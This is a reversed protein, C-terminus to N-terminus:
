PRLPCRPPPQSASSPRLQAAAANAPLSRPPTAPVQGLHPLTAHAADGLLVLGGRSWPAVPPRYFLGFHALGAPRAGAGDVATADVLARLPRNGQWQGEAVVAELAARTAAGAWSEPAAQDSRYALAWVVRAPAGFVDDSFTPRPAPPRGSDTAPLIPGLGYYIFSQGRGYHQVLSHDQYQLADRDVTKMDAVGYFLNLGSYTASDKKGYVAPRLVSNIGDAAIVIDFPGEHVTKREAGVSCKLWVKDMKADGDKVGLVDYGFSLTEQPLADRLTTILASRAVGFM